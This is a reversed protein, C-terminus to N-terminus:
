LSKIFDKLGDFASHDLLWYGKEAAEGLRLDPRQESALWVHVRAKDFGDPIRGHDRMCKFYEDVCGIAPSESVSKMCLTELMGPSGCDPLIFVSVGVTAGVRLGCQGPADFEANRLATQVSQLASNFDDDADRTIGISSVVSFGTYSRLGALFRRLNDKGGYQEVQIGKLGIEAVLKGLFRVEEIGEGLLLKAESLQRTSNATV